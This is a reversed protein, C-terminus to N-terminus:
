LMETQTNEQIVQIADETFHIAIHQVAPTQNGAPVPIIRVELNDLGATTEVSSEISYIGPKTFPYLQWLMFTVKNIDLESNISRAYSKIFVHHVNLCLFLKVNVASVIDAPGSVLAENTALTHHFLSDHIKFQTRNSSSRCRIETRVTIIM